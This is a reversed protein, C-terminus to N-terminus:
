TSDLDGNCNSNLCFVIGLEDGRSSTTVEVFVTMKINYVGDKPVSFIGDHLNVSEGLEEREPYQSQKM